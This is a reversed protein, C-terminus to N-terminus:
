EVILIKEVGEFMGTFIRCFYMGNPLDLDIRYEGAEMERDVVVEKLTGIYDYLEVRVRGSLGVGFNIGNNIVTLFYHKGTNSVSRIRRACFLGLDLTTGSASLGNCLQISSSDITLKMAFATDTNHPLFSTFDITVTGNDGSGSLTLQGNRESPIVSIGNTAEAIKHYKVLLSDYSVYAKWTQIGSPVSLTAQFPQGPLITIHPPNLTFLRKNVQNVTVLVTDHSSCGSSNSVTLIYQTTETPNALTQGQNPNALGTQPLWSYSNGQTGPIGIITQEGSCIIADQGADPIPTPTISVTVTSSDLCAGSTVYVTYVTESSTTCLPNSSKPNDLGTSPSWLYESGGSASLRVSSGNCVSTDGSVSVALNGHAVVVSDKATCGASNTVTLVYQTTTTPFAKPNSKTPDDLGSAPLWEYKNGDQSLTGLQIANGSCSSQDPGADATPPQLVTVTISDFDQCTGSSVRVKYTTTVKPSAIPNPIKPDDLGEIPSWEYESGGSASLTINTGTCVATDKSAKAVISGVTIIVTDYAICGLANTVQLIYQNTTANPSCVPNSATPNDLNTTPQWSYTNEPESPAGLETSELPCVTKDAGANATPPPFITVYSITTDKSYYDGVTLWVRHKGVKTYAVNVISDTSKQPVGNEFVWERHTPNNTSRDIFKVVVGVCGSDSSFIAVPPPPMCWLLPNVDTGPSNFIYDMFNPLGDISVRSDTIKFLNEKYRCASGKLNPREIVALSPIWSEAIYIKGDPALQLAGPIGSQATQTFLSNRISIPDSLSVDFQFLSLSVSNSNKIKGTSYLKTNDPSFAVGYFDTMNVNIILPNYNSVIGTEANFDFLSLPPTANNSALALKTRDPSIKMCGVVSRVNNFDYDSVIPEPNIGSATIHFSYFISSKLHHTVVWFGRGSCDLTGTVKEGVSDLLIVNKTIVEGDPNDLSVISYHFKTTYNADSSSFKGTLDPATFIYYLKSNGPNPVILMGQSSSRGSLLGTGNKMIQHNQNWVTDGNTYFLLDGTNKDSATACGEFSTLKGDKIETATGSKFSIGARDGFYWNDAEHQALAIGSTLCLFVVLLTYIKM